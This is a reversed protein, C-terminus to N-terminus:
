HSTFFVFYLIAFTILIGALGWGLVYRAGHGTVGQRARTETTVVPREALSNSFHDKPPSAMEDSEKSISRTAFEVSRRRNGSLILKEVTDKPRAGFPRDRIMAIIDAASLSPLEGREAELAMRYQSFGEARRYILIGAV